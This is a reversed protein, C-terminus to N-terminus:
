ARPVDGTEYGRVGPPMPPEFIGALLDRFPILAVLEGDDDFGVHVPVGNLARAQAKIKTWDAKPVSRGRGHKESGKTDIFLDLVGAIDGDGYTSGSAKTLHAEEFWEQAEKLAAQEVADGTKQQPTRM